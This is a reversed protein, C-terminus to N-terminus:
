LADIIADIDAKSKVRFGDQLSLGKIEHIMENANFREIPAIRFTVDELLEVLIGGIGFMLAQDFQPDTTMGIIMEAIPDDM